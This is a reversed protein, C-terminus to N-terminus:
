NGLNKEPLLKPMDLTITFLNKQFFRNDYLFKITNTQSSVNQTRSIKDM